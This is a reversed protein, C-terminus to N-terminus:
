DAQRHFAETLLKSDDHNGAIVEYPIKLQDVWEKVWAYISLDGQSYCLDGSLVLYNPRREQVAAIIRRFNERVDVFYTDEGEQGIHLDTIQIVRM